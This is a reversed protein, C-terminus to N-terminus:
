YNWKGESDKLVDVLARASAYLTTILHVILHFGMAKLEEPMHLPTIGGEIMYCVRYGNTRRGIEKLEDDNRPAEVFCAYAGAEMYLNARSIADSLGTKASIVRADARAVLFFDSDRIADRASAIKAAHEEAPIVQGCFSISFRKRM